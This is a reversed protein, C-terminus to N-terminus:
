PTIMGCAIRAGANGAPDTVEDDPDAHIVLSTGDPQFLSYASPGLTAEKAVFAARGTGDPGVELNPLDGTHAGEPNKMGHKKGHPNLHGGASKFDPPECKGVTHIHFGHRGPPLNFVSVDIQVGEPIETLTANGVTEGKANRLQAKAMQPAEACAISGFLVSVVAVLITGRM